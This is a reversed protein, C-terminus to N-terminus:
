GDIEKIDDEEKVEWMDILKVADRIGKSWATHIRYIDEDSGIAEGELGILNPKFRQAMDHHYQGAKSLLEMWGERQEDSSVTLKKIDVVM